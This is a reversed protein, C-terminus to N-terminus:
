RSAARWPVSFGAFPPPVVWDGRELAAALNELLAQVAKRVLPDELNAAEMARSLRDAKVM